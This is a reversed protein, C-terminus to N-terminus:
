GTSLLALRAEVDGPLRTRARLASPLRPVTAVLASRGVAGRVLSARCRQAVVRWPRRMVATLIGNRLILRERASSTSRVSSPYHHAVVEPVYALDWRHAALDLAVREEEGPFFVVPDFGGVALFAERRVAAGCAVFGLVPAGPLGPTPPLPSAAMEASAPDLREEPGVLVRAAVLALRPCADFLKVLRDRADTAWWSDDDAFVVYPTAAREVGVNRATAGLNEPLEMIQVHPYAARVAEVTGDTSGNDVLIVPGTHRALSQLLDVRRNLSIVVTTVRESAAASREGSGTPM